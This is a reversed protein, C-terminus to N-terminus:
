EDRRWELLFRWPWRRSLSAGNWGAENALARVEAISFAAAVSRPGDVHVVNSRTLARAGLWAALYGTRGRVLDNVLALRRASQRMKLLFGLAQEDALHHLFLSSTVVDFGTPWDDNLVDIRFFEVPAGVEAARARACELATPSIDGAHIELPLGVRRARQWLRIPVDGAGTAVDLLRLPRGSGAALREIPRWLIADSGSIFNIRALGRLAAGHVAPDLDPQDM